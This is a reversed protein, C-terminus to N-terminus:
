VTYIKGFWKVFKKPPVDKFLTIGCSITSEEGVTVGSMINVGIGVLVKDHVVVNSGFVAGPAIHCFPGIHTDHSITVGEDIIVGDGITTGPGITVGDKIICGRGITFNWPPIVATPSILTLMKFEKLLEERRDMNDIETAMWTDKPLNGPHITALSDFTSYEYFDDCYGSVEYGCREVLARLNRGGQSAGFIVIKPKGGM